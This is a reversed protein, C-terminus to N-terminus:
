LGKTRSLPWFVFIARGIIRNEPLFGWFRSDQSNGRNDGMMFYNNEPVTLPGCYMDDRCPMWDTKSLIYPENLKKDNIYVFYQGDEPRVELKDGPLGVVRKIFAIDKCLIGTLRSLISFFDKRLIEDPPYFVLIDGREPKRVPKSLKEVFLRDGEILTPHM